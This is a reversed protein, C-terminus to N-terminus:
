RIGQGGAYIPVLQNELPMGLGCVADGSGRRHSQVLAPQAPKYYAIQGHSSQLGQAGSGSSQFASRCPSSGVDVIEIECMKEILRRAHPDGFLMDNWIRTLRLATDTLMRFRVAHVQGLAEYLADDTRSAM